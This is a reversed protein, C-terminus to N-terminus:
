YLRVLVARQLLVAVTLLWARFKLNVKGWTAHRTMTVFNWLKMFELQPVAPFLLESCVQKFLFFSDLTSFKFFLNTRQRCNLIGVQIELRERIGCLLSSLPPLRM